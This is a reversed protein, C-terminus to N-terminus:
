GHLFVLNADMSLGKEERCWIGCMRTTVTITDGSKAEELQPKIVDWGEKSSDDAKIKAIPM